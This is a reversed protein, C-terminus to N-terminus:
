VVAASGDCRNARGVNRRPLMGGESTPCSQVRRGCLRLRKRFRGPRSLRACRDSRGSHNRNSVIRDSATEDESRTAALGFQRATCVPTVPKGKRRCRSPPSSKTVRGPCAPVIPRNPGCKAKPPIGHSPHEDRSQHRHGTEDRRDAHGPGGLRNSPVRDDDPVIDCGARPALDDPGEFRLVLPLGEGVVLGGLVDAPIDARVMGAVDAEDARRGLVERVEGQHGVREAAREVIVRVDVRDPADEGPEVLLVRQFERLRVRHHDLPGEGLGEARPQVPHRLPVIHGLPGAVPALQSLLLRALVERRLGAPRDAVRSSERYTWLSRDSSVNSRIMPDPWPPCWLQISM